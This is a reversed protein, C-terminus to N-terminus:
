ERTLLDLLDPTSLAAATDTGSLVQAVLERKRAHLSLMKEEITGLTVLRYITVPRTQGLRHARDSAQDEVAPNWWPDLHIVNTAATLNLGSGGAMLSILFLPATGQQFTAVRTRRAQQPTQGDLYVYEIGRADLAERVLALHSTFQSFVLARQGEARLEDVLELLRTLKSSVLVSRADYLRPHSALLRLRTLAALVEIRRQQAKLKSRTTGLDSLAALRADEYLQWEASSLVIPVRVETRAPLETEVEAKTRRLLFPALVRALAPAAAPDIDKEIPTAYRDRFSPWGGLLAPFVIKFLSWIEGTHNEIPTGSLAFKFDARLGRAAAARQTTANKLNQAEDFVLTSFHKEALRDADRALLGYSAVLVDGPGLQALTGERDAVDAYLTLRLSPAFRAAEDKWNFAVSTPALVLAPGLESRDLLVALTQVTKGLGMDDALVGGAGWAALRTLWRYGEIQYPRLETQLAAPVTPTLEGAAAVRTALDRFSTDAEVVVGSRVLENFIMSGSPGISVGQPSVHAHDAFRDLQRRLAADIEVYSCADIKVYRENRRVADLLRALEVREGSVTLGGLAGFWEGRRQIVVKLAPPGHAGLSRLQPGIFELEPPEPLNACAAILDLASEATALRYHFPEDLEEAHLRPLEAALAKVATEEIRLDRVAHVAREGRRVHVDRAGQGPVLSPTDHLPKVRIEMEVSGDAQAELRLVLGVLAAVSEGMVSRPMTVPVRQAWKALSQLLVARSEPPFVNGDRLLVDLLTKLEPKVDLLTLRQGDWLFIAEDPRSRRARDALAKPLATGEIGVSVRVSGGREEAVVGLPARDLIVARDPADRVVVRPHDLLAELLARTAFGENEPLLAAVRADEPALKAGHEMLLHRRGIRSAASLQGKKGRKQIWPTVEVSVDNVVHVRWTLALGARAAPSEDLAQDLAQLTREWAPRALVDLAQALAGTVPGHLWLLVADIAALAHVCPGPGCTCELTPRAAAFSVRAETQVFGGSSRPLPEFPRPDRFRFGPLAAEFHLADPSLTHVLRPAVSAPVRERLARLEAHVARARAEEPAELLVPVAARARAADASEADLFSWVLPPLLERLLSPPLWDLTRALADASALDILHRRAGLSRLQPWLAPDVRPALAELNFRAVHAIGHQTLWALLESRTEFPVGPAPPDV